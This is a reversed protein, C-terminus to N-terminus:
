PKQKWTVKGLTVLLDYREDIINYEWDFKLIILGQNYADLLAKEEYMRQINPLNNSLPNEEVMCGVNQRDVREIKFEILESFDAQFSTSLAPSVADFIPKFTAFNWPSETIKNDMLMFIKKQQDTWEDPIYIVPVDSMNKELAEQLSGNGAWVMNNKDAIIPDTFGIMEYLVGLDHLQKEDHRKINKPNLKLKKPDVMVPKPIQIKKQDSM